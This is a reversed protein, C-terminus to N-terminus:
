PPRRHLTGRPHEQKGLLWRVADLFPSRHKWSRNHRVGLVLALSLPFSKRQISAVAGARAVLRLSRGAPSDAAVRDSRAPSLHCDERSYVTGLGGDRLVAGGQSCPAAAGNLRRGGRSPQITSRREIMRRGEVINHSIPKEVYVNKGAQCAWMMLSPTGTIPRAAITVADVDRNDLVRRFDTETKPDGGFKEKLVSLSGTFHREDIDVVHTIRVNAVGALRHYHDQGRGRSTWTPHGKNDGRIGIIAVNVTENPSAYARSRKPFALALGATAAATKSLFVRRNM